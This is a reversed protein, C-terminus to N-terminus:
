WKQAVGKFPRLETMQWGIKVNKKLFAQKKLVFRITYYSLEIEKLKSM